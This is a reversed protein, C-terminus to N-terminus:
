ISQDALLMGADNVPDGTKENDICLFPAFMVFIDTSVKIWICFHLVLLAIFLWRNNGFRSICEKCVNVFFISFTTLGTLGFYFLFRSYGADTNMYFGYDSPGIYYPDNYGGAMYGDGIIWTKTNDPFILGESLLNTSNTEFKGKEFYNFFGEFAFLLLRKAEPSTYYLAVCIAIGTVLTIVTISMFGSLTDSKRLDADTWISYAGYIIAIIAGVTTTRGMMNGCILIYIFCSILGIYKWKAEGRKLAQLLLYVTVILIAGLRGGGVDLACGLGHLRSHGIGVGMYKEGVIYHTFLNELAPIQHIFIAATCQFLAVGLLYYGVREISVDGHVIRILHVPFYVAFLWVWMSVIYTLYSNDPTDNYTMAALSCLSVGFAWLSLFFLKRVFARNYDNARDISFALLGCIAMAMKTNLGPLVSTFFPFIALSMFLVIASIKSLRIIAEM